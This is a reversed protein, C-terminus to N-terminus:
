KNKPCFFAGLEVDSAAIVGPFLINSKGRGEECHCHVKGGGKCM